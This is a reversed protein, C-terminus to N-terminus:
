PLYFTESVCPEASVLSIFCHRTLSATPIKGLRSSWELWSAKQLAYMEYKKADTSIRAMNATFRVSDDHYKSCETVKQKSATM